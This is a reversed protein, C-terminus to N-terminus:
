FIIKAYVGGQFSGWGIEIFTSYKSVLGLNMAKVTYLIVLVIDVSLLMQTM